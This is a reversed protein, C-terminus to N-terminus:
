KSIRVAVVRPFRSQRARKRATRDGTWYQVVIILYAGQLEEVRHQQMPNDDELFPYLTEDVNYEDGLGPNTYIYYEFVDLLMKLQFVENEDKSYMGGICMVALLLPLAVTATNFSSEHLFTGHKQWHRFYLKVWSEIRRATISEIAAYITSLSLPNHSIRLESAALSLKQRIDLSRVELSDWDFYNLNPYGYPAKEVQAIQRHWHSDGEFAGSELSSLFNDLNTDAGFFSSTDYFDYGTSGSSAANDGFISGYIGPEAKSTPMYEMVEDSSDRPTGIATDSEPFTQKFTVNTSCNLLFGISNRDSSTIDNAAVSQGDSESMSSNRARSRVCERGFDVCKKCPAESDCKVKLRACPDCAHRKRGRDEQKPM